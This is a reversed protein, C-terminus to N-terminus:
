GDAKPDALSSHCHKCLIAEVKISEACYPCKMTGAVVCGPNEKPTKHAILTLKHFVTENVKGLFSTGDTLTCLVSFEQKSAAGAIALAGGTAAGITGASLGGMIIAPQGVKPDKFTKESVVKLDALRGQLSVIKDGLLLTSSFVLHWIGAQIDGGVIEIKSSKGLQSAVSAATWLILKRRESAEEVYEYCGYEAKMSNIYPYPATFVNFTKAVTIFRDYAASWTAENGLSWRWALLEGTTTLEQLKDRKREASAIAHSLEVEVQACLATLSLDDNDSHM